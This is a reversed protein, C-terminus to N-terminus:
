VFDTRRARTQDDENELFANSMAGAEYNIWPSSVNSPTLCLVGFTCKQLAEDDSQISRAGAEIEPSFFVEAGPVFLPIYESFIAAYARSQDGSWSVFVSM